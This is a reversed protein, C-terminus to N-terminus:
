IHLGEIALLHQECNRRKPLPLFVQDITSIKASSSHQWLFTFSSAQKGFSSFALIGRANLVYAINAGVWRFLSFMLNGCNFKYHRSWDILWHMAIFCFSIRRLIYSEQGPLDSQALYKQLRNTTPTPKETLFLFEVLPYYNSIYTHMIQLLSKLTAKHRLCTDTEWHPSAPFSNNPSLRFYQPEYSIFFALFVMWLFWWFSIPQRQTHKSM